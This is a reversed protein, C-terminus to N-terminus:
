DDTVLRIPQRICYTCHEDGGAICTAQVPDVNLMERIVHRDLWCIEPHEHAVQRYPCTLLRVVYNDGEAEWRATFGKDSLLQALQGLREETSQGPRISSAEAAIKTAIRHLLTDLGDRGLMAKVEDFLYDALHYYDEPFLQNAAETLTYLQQPRGPQSSRRVSFTVVLKEGYLVNLHHRVAMETLGVAGALEAVTAQGREKLLEVIKQRTPQM